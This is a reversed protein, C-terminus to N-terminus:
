WIYDMKDNHEEDYQMRSKSDFTVNDRKEAGDISGTIICLDDTNMNCVITAPKIYNKKM